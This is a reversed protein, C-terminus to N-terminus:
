MICISCDKIDVLIWKVYYENCMNFCDICNYYWDMKNSVLM